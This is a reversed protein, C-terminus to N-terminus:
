GNSAGLICVLDTYQRGSLDPMVARIDYVLAGYVVRMGADIDTRYRIRISAQVVSVDADAKITELGSKHAINAWVTAAETWSSVPQGIEDQGTSLRQITVLNRLHGIEM